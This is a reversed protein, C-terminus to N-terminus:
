RSGPQPLSVENTSGVSRLQRVLAQAQVARDPKKANVKRDYDERARRSSILELCQLTVKDVDFDYVNHVYSDLGLDSFAGFGKREYALHIVYHGQRIAMLAAHLRVAIIVRRPSDGDDEVHDIITRPDIALTARTDNNGGVASQVLSDFPRLKEALDILDSNTGGRLSRVSLVPVSEVSRTIRDPFEGSLIALDPSRHCEQNGLYARSRDDRVYVANMRRLMSRVIFGPVKQFPGVSQPMYVSSRAFFATVVLQPGHVLAMKLLENLSRSRLYGGGVALVVDYRRISSLIRVYEILETFAGPKSSVTRVDVGAFSNPDSALLTIDASHWAARALNITEEVLLGDGLNKASYGHSILVKM